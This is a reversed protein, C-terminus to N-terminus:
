CIRKWLKPWYYGARQIALMKANIHGGFIGNHTQELVKTAEKDNDDVRRM